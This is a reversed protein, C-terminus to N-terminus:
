PTFNLNERYEKLYGAVSSSDETNGAIITCKSSAEQCAGNGENAFHAAAAAPEKGQGNPENWPELYSVGHSQAMAQKLVEKLNSKYEASSSPYVGNYSTLGVEIALGMSSADNLWTEFQERYNSYPEGSATMANWQVVYRAYKIHPGPNVWTTKFFNAFYSSSFGGDWFPMSQDSIGDVYGTSAQASACALVLALLCVALYVSLLRCRKGRLARKPPGGGTAKSMRGFLVTPRMRGSM